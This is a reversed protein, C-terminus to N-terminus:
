ALALDTKAFDDGVCLLPQDALKAVAYALCDGFNLGAKHHGRGFRTYADAAQRWHDEGFPVIAVTWEHLLRILIDRGIAGLRADLVVATEAASPSGIAVVDAAAIKHVVAEYGPEKFVVAVIASTDLIM